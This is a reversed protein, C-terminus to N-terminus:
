PANTHITYNFGLHLLLIALLIGIPAIMLPLLLYLGMLLGGLLGTLAWILAVVIFCVGMVKGQDSKQVADSYLTIICSYVIVDGIATPVAALWILPEAILCFLITSFAGVSMLYLSFLLMKHLTFWRQLLRIGVSTAIALWFAIMGVFLGLEQADFQLITKLVPPIFQYYLSWSIQSLLLIISIRWVAPHTLVQIFPKINWQISFPKTERETHTEQFITLTLIFSILAFFSAVFFPLSFHLAPFPNACYGGIVPGLFAGLSISTQLFGMYLVKTNRTSIDGIVAQAIPNTRSFAGRLILALFLLSFFGFFVGFAGTIAFLFAGFTGFLLLKKRGYTDSLASLVPTIAINVIHPISICLGYWFSRTAADTGVPFLLSQSDFFLLTLVPFTINLCTHDFLMVWLLPKLRNKQNENSSISLSIASTSM